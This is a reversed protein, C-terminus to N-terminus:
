LVGTDINILSRYNLFMLLGSFVFVPLMAQLTATTLSFDLTTNRKLRQLSKYLAILIGLISVNLAILLLIGSYYVMIWFATFLNYLALFINRLNLLISHGSYYEEYEPPAGAKSYFVIITISFIVLPTVWMLIRYTRALVIMLEYDGHFRKRLGLYVMVGLFFSAIGATKTREDVILFYIALYALGSTIVTIIFVNTLKSTINEM